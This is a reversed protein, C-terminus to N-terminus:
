PQKNMADLINNMLRNMPAFNRSAALMEEASQIYPPKDLDDETNEIFRRVDNETVELHFQLGVVRDALAFAQNRCIESSVLLTSGSPLDYTDGHWHFVDIKDPFLCHLPSKEANRQRFVPFWGIEPHKNKYVPADLASAILQAGLCIGLVKKGRQIMEKIFVKEDKLWPYHHEDTVSMPGGMIILWEFERYLPLSEGQYFRTYSVSYGKQNFYEEIVSPPEYPVHQLIHIESM